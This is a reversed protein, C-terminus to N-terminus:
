VATLHEEPGETANAEGRPGGAAVGSLLQHVVQPNHCCGPAGTPACQSLCLKVKSEFKKWYKNITKYRSQARFKIVWKSSLQDKKKPSGLWLLEAEWKRLEPFPSSDFIDQLVNKQWNWFCFWVPGGFLNTLSRVWVPMGHSAIAAWPGAVWKGM